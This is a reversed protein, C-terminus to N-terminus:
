AARFPLEAKHKVVSTKYYKMRWLIESETPRDGRFKAVRDSDTDVKYRLDLFEPGDGLFKV